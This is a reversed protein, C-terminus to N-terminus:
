LFKSIHMPANGVCHTADCWMADCWMADFRLADSACLLDMWHGRVGTNSFWVSQFSATSDVCVGFVPSESTQDQKSKEFKIRANNCLMHVGITVEMQQNWFSTRTTLRHPPRSDHTMLDDDIRPWLAPLDPFGGHLPPAPDCHRLLRIFSFSM